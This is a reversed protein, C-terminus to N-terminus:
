DIRKRWVLIAAVPIVFAILTVWVTLAPLAAYQGREVIFIMNMYKTMLDGATIAVDGVSRDSVNRHATAPGNAAAVVARAIGAAILLEACSPGRGPVACPELTVYATAGYAAADADILAMAEAHPRGGRQTWGLGIVKEDKM